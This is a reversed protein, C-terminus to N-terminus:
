LATLQPKLIPSSGAAVTAAHLRARPLIHAAYFAACDVLAQMRADAGAREVARRATVAWQWAGAVM